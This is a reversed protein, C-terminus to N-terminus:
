QVIAIFHLVDGSTCAVTVDGSALPFTENIVAASAEVASGKHTFVCVDVSSLGTEIDGAGSDSTTQGCVLRRNGELQMEFNIVTTFAM